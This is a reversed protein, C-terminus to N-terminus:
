AMRAPTLSYVGTVCVISVTSVCVGGKTEPLRSLTSSTTAVMWSIVPDIATQGEQSEREIRQRTKLSIGGLTDVYLPTGSLRKLRGSRLMHSGFPKRTSQVFFSQFETSLAISIIM